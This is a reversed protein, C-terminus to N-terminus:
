VPVPKVIASRYAMLLIHALSTKFKVSQVKQILHSGIELYYSKTLIAKKNQICGMM